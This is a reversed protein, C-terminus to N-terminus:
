DAHDGTGVDFPPQQHHVAYVEGPRGIFGSPLTPLSRDIPSLCKCPEKLTMHQYGLVALQDNAGGKREMWSV